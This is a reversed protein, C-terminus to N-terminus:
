AAAPCPRWCETRGHAARVRSTPPAPRRMSIRRRRLTAIPGSSATTIATGGREAAESNGPRFVGDLNRAITFACKRKSGGRSAGGIRPTTPPSTSHSNANGCRRDTVILLPSRSTSMGRSSSACAIQRSTQLAAPTAPSNGGHCITRSRRAVNSAVGPASRAADPARDGPPFVQKEGAVPSIGPQRCRDLTRDTGSVAGGVQNQRHLGSRAIAIPQRSRFQAPFIVPHRAFHLGVM